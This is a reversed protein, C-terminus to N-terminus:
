LVGWGDNARMAAHYRWFMLAAAGRHPSWEAALATLAKAAPREALGFAHAVAKQLALDGSPFIDPHGACFLLYIEATWPGVGKLKVMEAIAAEAPLAEIADFDLAGAIVADALGRMTRYKGGSLGAARLSEEQFALYSPASTVGMAELRSWIARASAVSLQQGVIIRALGEFGRPSQRIGVEGAREVARALREDRKALLVLHEALM